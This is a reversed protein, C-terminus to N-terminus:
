PRRLRSLRLTLRIKKVFSTRQTQIHPTEGLSSTLAWKLPFPGYFALSIMRDGDKRLPRTSSTPHGTRFGMVEQTGTVM